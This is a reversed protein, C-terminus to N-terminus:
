PRISDDVRPCADKRRIARAAVIVPYNADDPSLESISVEEAAIGYLFATAAFVNGHAEVSVANKGFEVECLRQIAPVTFTWYWSWENQNSQSVGPATILLIGGPKLARYLRKIGIRLDYVYQLVQTLVICDFVAEPLIGPQTLDGVITTLPNEISIIDSREVRNGGFRLTYLNNGAELVHGRIDDANRALFEEIYYRDIPTGRESGFHSSIPTPRRLDGFHVSGRPIPSPRGQVWRMGRAISPPLVSTACGGLFDILANM